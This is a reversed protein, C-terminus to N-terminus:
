VSVALASFATRGIVLGTAPAQLGTATPVNDSLKDPSARSKEGAAHSNMKNNPTVIVQANTATTNYVHGRLDRFAGAAALIALRYHKVELTTPPRGM